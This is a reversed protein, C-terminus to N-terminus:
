PLRLSEGPYISGPDISNLRAIASISARPDAGGDGFREAIAWLTDGPQVVVVRAAEHRTRAQAASGVVSRAVPAALLLAAVLAAIRDYRVRTRTM